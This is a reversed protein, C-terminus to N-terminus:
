PARVPERSEYQQRSAQLDALALRFSVLEAKLAQLRAENKTTRTLYAEMRSALNAIDDTLDAMAQQHHKLVEQVLLERRRARERENTGLVYRTGQRVAVGLVIVTGIGTVMASLSLLGGFGLTALGSTIGAASFGSVSGAVYVSTLPAGLAALNALADKSRRELQGTTIRGAIFDEETDVLREIERLMQDAAGPFVMAAVSAVYEREEVAVDKDARSIRLLDRILMTLVTDRRDADLLSSLQETLALVDDDGDGRRLDDPASRAAAIENRLQARAEDDLDITSAFLYLNAIERPDFLGDGKAQRALVRCYALKADIPLRTLDIPAQNRPRRAGVADKAKGAIGIVKAKAIGTAGVLLDQTMDVTDALRDQTEEAADTLRSKATSAVSRVQDVDLRKRKVKPEM